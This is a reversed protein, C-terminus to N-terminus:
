RTRYRTFRDKGSRLRCAYARLARCVDADHNKGRRIILSGRNRPYPEPLKAINAAIRRARILYGSANECLLPWFRFDRTRTVGFLFGGCRPAQM